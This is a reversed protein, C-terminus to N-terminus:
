WLTWQQSRIGSAALAKSQFTIPYYSISIHHVQPLDTGPGFLFKISRGVVQEATYGLFDYVQLDCKLVHYPRQMQVMIGFM